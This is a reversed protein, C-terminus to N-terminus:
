DGGYHRTQRIEYHRAHSDFRKLLAQAAAPVHAVTADPGVFASIHAESVFRMITMFSVEDGANRRLVDIGLFGPLAMAEIGPLVHTYLLHEYADADDLTTWGQWIRAIM